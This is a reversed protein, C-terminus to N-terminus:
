AALAQGGNAPRSADGPADALRSTRHLRAVSALLRAVRQVTMVALLVGAVALTTLGHYILWTTV